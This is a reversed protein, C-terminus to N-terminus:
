QSTRGYHSSSKEKVSIYVYFFFFPRLIKPRKEAINVIEIKINITLLIGEIIRDINCCNLIMEKLM